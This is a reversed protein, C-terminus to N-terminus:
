QVPYYEIVDGKEIGWFALIHKKMYSKEEPTHGPFSNQASQMDLNYAKLDAYLNIKCPKDCTKRVQKMTKEFDKIEMSTGTYKVNQVLYPGMNETKIVEYLMKEKPAGIQTIVLLVVGVMGITVLLQLIRM